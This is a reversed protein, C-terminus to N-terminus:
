IDHKRRSKVATIISKTYDMNDNKLINQKSSRNGNDMETEEHRKSIIKKKTKENTDMSRVLVVSLTIKFTIQIEM